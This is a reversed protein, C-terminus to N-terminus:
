SNRGISASEIFSHGLRDMCTPICQYDSQKTHFITNHSENVQKKLVYTYSKLCIPVYSVCSM